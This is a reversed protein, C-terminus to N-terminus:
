CLDFVNYFIISSVVLKISLGFICSSKNSWSLNSLNIPERQLPLETPQALEQPCPLQEPIMKLVTNLQGSGIKITEVNFNNEDYYTQVDDDLMVSSQKQSINEFYDSPIHDKPQLICQIRHLVERLLENKTNKSLNFVWRLRCDCM